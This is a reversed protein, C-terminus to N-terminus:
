GAQHESKKHWGPPLRVRFLGRLSRPLRSPARQFQLVIVTHFVGVTGGNRGVAAKHRKHSTVDDFCLVPPLAFDPKRRSITGGSGGADRIRCETRGIRTPTGVTLQESENRPTFNRLSFFCTRDPKQAHILRAAFRKLDSADASSGDETGVI